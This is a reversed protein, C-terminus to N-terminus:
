VQFDHILRWTKELQERKAEDAFMYSELFSKARPNMRLFLIFRAEDRSLTLTTLGRDAVYSPPSYTTGSDQHSAAAVEDCTEPQTLADVSMGFARALKDLAKDDPHRRNTEYMSVASPSLGATEALKAQTWGKARRLSAIRDGLNMDM